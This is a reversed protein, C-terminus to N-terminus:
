SGEYLSIALDIVEDPTEKRNSLSHGEGEFWTVPISYKQAFREAAKPDIVTDERGHAMAIRHEGSHSADFIEFLDYQPLEEYFERCIRVPNGLGMDLDFYGRTELQALMQREEKTPDEIQLLDPMNVAASRWFAKRGSHERLSIYLGTLYAGFSSGFYYIESDPWHRRVYAETAEISDLAGPIRLIEDASEHIGHGPLDICIVGLGAAPLRKLLRRYTSSEKSSSFGHIVIVIAKPQDPIEKACSVFFGNEKKISFEEM